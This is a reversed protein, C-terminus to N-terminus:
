AEHLARTFAEVTSVDPKPDGRRVFVGVGSRAILTVGALKDSGQLDNAARQGAIAVDFADGSEIRRPVAGAPTLTVTVTHGTAQEFQPNLIKFSSLLAGPTVVKIEAAALSSTWTLLAVLAITRSM